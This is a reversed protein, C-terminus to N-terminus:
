TSPCRVPPPLRAPPCSGCRTGEAGTWAYTDGAGACAVAECGRYIGGVVHLDKNVFFHIELYRMLLVVSQM